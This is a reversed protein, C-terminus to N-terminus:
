NRRAMAVSIAARRLDDGAECTVTMEPPQFPHSACYKVGASSAFGDREPADASASRSPWGFRASYAAPESGRTADDTNTGKGERTVTAVTLYAAMVKRMELLM